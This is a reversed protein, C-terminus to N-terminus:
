EERVFAARQHQDQLRRLIVRHGQV